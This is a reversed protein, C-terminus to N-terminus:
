DLRRKWTFRCGPRGCHGEATAWDVKGRKGDRDATTGFAHSGCMPCTFVQDISFPYKTTGM